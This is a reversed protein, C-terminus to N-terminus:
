KILRQYIRTPTSPIRLGTGFSKGNNLNEMSSEWKLSRFNRAFHDPTSTQRTMEKEKTSTNETSDKNRLLEDLPAIATKIDARFTGAEEIETNIEEDEVGEKDSFLDLIWDNDLAKIAEYQEELSSKLNIIKAREEPKLNEENKKIDGLTKTVYAKHAVRTRIKKKLPDTM